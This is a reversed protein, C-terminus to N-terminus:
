SCGEEASDMQTGAGSPGAQWGTGRPEGTEQLVVVDWDLRGLTCFIVKRRELQRLGRTNWTAVKLIHTIGEEVGSPAAKPMVCLKMVHPVAM